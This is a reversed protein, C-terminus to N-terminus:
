GALRKDVWRKTNTTPKPADPYRASWVEMLRTFNVRRGERMPAAYGKEIVEWFVASAEPHADLWYPLPADDTVEALIAAAVASVSDEEVM